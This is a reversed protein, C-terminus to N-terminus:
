TTIIKDIEEGLLNFNINPLLKCYREVIDSIEILLHLKKTRRLTFYVTSEIGERDIADKKSYRKQKIDGIISFLESFIGYKVALDYKGERQFSLRMKDYIKSKDYAIIVKDRAQNPYGVSLLINFESLAENFKKAQQLYLPLRLFTSVPYEFKSRNIENYAKRLFLIAYELIGADKQGTAERLLFDPDKSNLKLRNEKELKKRKIYADNWKLIKSLVMKYTTPAPKLGAGVM